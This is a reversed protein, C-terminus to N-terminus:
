SPDWAIEARVPLHDSAVRALPSAERRVTFLRAAPEAWIRDLALLPHSAPFTAVAPPRGLAAHLRRLCRAGPWWENIDGLFITFPARDTRLADLLRDIQIRRDARRLGLHTVVARVAWGDLDLTVDLAGRPETRPLSLDIQRVALIPLRTLLGNGCHGPEQRLIPCAVPLLGTAKGLYALQDVAGVGRFRSAVEQLGVVDAGLERIVAATRAPDHRRDMGICRHVNYSAITLRCSRAAAVLAGSAM